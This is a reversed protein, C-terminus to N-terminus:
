YSTKSRYQNWDTTPNTNPIVFGIPITSGYPNTDSTLYQDWEKRRQILSEYDSSKLTSVSEGFLVRMWQNEISNEDKLRNRIKSETEMEKELTYSWM